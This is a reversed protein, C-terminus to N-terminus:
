VRSFAFRFLRKCPSTISGSLSEPDSEAAASPLSLPPLEDPEESSSSDPEEPPSSSSTAGRVVLDPRLIAAGAPPRLM